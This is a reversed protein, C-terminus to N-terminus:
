PQGANKFLKIRVGFKMGYILYKSRYSTNEIEKQNFQYRLSPEIFLVTSNLQYNIGMNFLGYYYVQPSAKVEDINLIHGYNDYVYGQSKLHFAFSMGASAEFSWKSSYKHYQYGFRIPIELFQYTNSAKKTEETRIWHAMYASDIREINTDITPPNIVYSFSTDVQWYSQELDDYERKFYYEIDETLRQYNLGLQLFLPHRKKQIRLGAGFQYSINQSESSSQLTVPDNSLAEPKILNSFMMPMVSFEAQILYNPLYFGKELSSMTKPQPVSSILILSDKEFFVDDSEVFLSQMSLSNAKQLINEEEIVDEVNKDKNFISAKSTKTKTNKHILNSNESNAAETMMEEDLEINSAITEEGESSHEEMEEPLLVHCSLGSTSACLEKRYAELQIKEIEQPSMLYTWESTDHKRTNLQDDHTNLSTFQTTEQPSTEAKSEKVEEVVVATTTTVIAVAGITKIIGVSKLVVTAKALGAKILGSKLATVKIASLSKAIIGTSKVATATTGAVTSSVAAGTTTTAVSGAVSSAGASSAAGSVASAGSSASAGAAGSAGSTSSLGAAAGTGTAAASLGIMAAMKAEMGEAPKASYDELGEKFLKDVNFEKDM